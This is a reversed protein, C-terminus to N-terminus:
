TVSLLGRAWASLLYGTSNSHIGQLESSTQNNRSLSSNPSKPFPRLDGQAYTLSLIEFPFHSIHLDSLRLGQTAVM